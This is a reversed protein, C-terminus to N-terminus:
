STKQLPPVACYLPFPPFTASCLAMVRKGECVDGRLGEVRVEVKGKGEGMHYWHEQEKSLVVKGDEEGEGKAGDEKTFARPAEEEEEDETAAGDM